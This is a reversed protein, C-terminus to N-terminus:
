LQADIRRMAPDGPKYGTRASSFVAESMTASRIDQVIFLKWDIPKGSDSGGSTQYGRLKAVGHRDVGVCHPEVTRFHGHYTFTVVRRQQIASILLDKTM